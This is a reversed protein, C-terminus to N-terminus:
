DVDIDELDEQSFYDGVFYEALYQAACDELITLYNPVEIFLKGELEEETEAWLKEIEEDSIVTSLRDYFLNKFCVGVVMKEEESLDMHSIQEIRDILYTNADKISHLM